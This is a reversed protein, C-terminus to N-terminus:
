PFSNPSPIKMSVHRCSSGCCNGRQLHAVRTCVLYGTVPDVYNPKGAACAEEHLEVIRKEAATLGEGGACTREPASCQRSPQSTTSYQTDGLNPESPNSDGQGDQTSDHSLPKRLHQPERLCARPTSLGKYCRALAVSTM